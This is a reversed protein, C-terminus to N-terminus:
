LIKFISPMVDGTIVHTKQLAGGDGFVQILLNINHRPFFKVLLHTAM